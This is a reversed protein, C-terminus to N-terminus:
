MAFRGAKTKSWRGLGSFDSMWAGFAAISANEYYGKRTKDLKQQIKGMFKGKM